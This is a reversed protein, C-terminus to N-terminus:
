QDRYLAYVFTRKWTSAWHSSLRHACHLARQVSCAEELSTCRISQVLMGAAFATAACLAFLLFFLLKYISCCM